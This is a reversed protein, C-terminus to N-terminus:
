PGRECLVATNGTNSHFSNIQFGGLRYLNGGGGNAFTTDTELGSFRPACWPCGSNSKQAFRCLM